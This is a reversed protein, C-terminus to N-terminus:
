KEHEQFVPPVTKLGEKRFRAISEFLLERCPVKAELRTCLLFIGSMKRHLSYSADPPPTLRHELMTPILQRVNSTVQHALGFDYTAHRFPEGLMMVANVHSDKMIQSEYGTLFGIDESKSLVTQKDGQAAAELIDAYLSLFEISYTRASGFDLLTLRPPHSTYLFNSWNPDTQMTGWEFLEKMCLNLIQTGVWNRSIPDLKAVEGLPIGGSVYEMTLIRQTSHSPIVKPTHLPPCTHQTFWTQYFAERHYNTEWSLERQAVHLTNELYMGKPLFGSLHVLASVHALDSAIADAIGPYQIKVAVETTDLLVGRHVQGMSAAAFPQWEFSQFRNPWDPGLETSMVKNMQRRPMYDACNQLQAFISEVHPPLLGSDQISLMQGLKLAAGRMQRLTSVIHQINNSNIFSSTGEILPEANGTMRKISETMAGVSIQAALGGYQLLRGLKSTHVASPRLTEKLTPSSSSDNPTTSFFRPCLSNWTWHIENTRQSHLVHRLSPSLCTRSRLLNM